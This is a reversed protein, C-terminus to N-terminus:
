VKKLKAPATATMSCQSSRYRELRGAEGMFKQAAGGQKLAAHVVNARGIALSMQEVTLCTLIRGELGKERQVATFKRSLKDKGGDAADCAHVLAAAQGSGVLEDVQQFGTSVLGAKNAISLAQVARAALLGDLREALDGPVRVQRKLSRAFVNAKAGATVVGHEASLWVGRGPLRAGLDPVIDGDPAVVFRILETVPRPARTLACLRLPGQDGSGVIDDGDAEEEVVLDKDEGYEDSLADAKPAPPRM